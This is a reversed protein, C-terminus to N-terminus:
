PGSSIEARPKRYRNLVDMMSPEFRCGQEIARDCHEAAQKYDGRAFYAKALGSRVSANKPNLDLAKRFEVIGDELKGCGCLASGLNGRAPAMDPDLALARRYQAVADEMKGMKQFSVGANFYADPLTPFFNAAERYIRLAEEDRGKRSYAAGLSKLYVGIMERRGLTRLYPSGDKLRYKKSYWANKREGGGEGTEINIRNGSGEYRVFCHGPVYVGGLPIKLKEALALYVSTLGLCNGHKRALVRDLLYNEPNGANPDYVFGDEYFLVRNLASVTRAPDKLDGAHVIVRRAIRDLEKEVLGGDADRCELERSARASVLFLTGSLSIESEPLLAMKKLTDGALRTDAFADDPCPVSAAFVPCAVAGFLLVCLFIFLNTRLNVRM